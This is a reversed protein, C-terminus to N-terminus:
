PGVQERDEVLPRLVSELAPSLFRAYAATVHFDNTYALMNGIVPSCTEGCFWPTVDIFAVGSEEAVQREVDNYSDRTATALLSSCAQVDDPNRALCDLHGRWRPNDGLVALATGPSALQGLTERLGAAWASPSIRDRNPDVMHDCGNCSALVVLGPRSQNIRAIAGQLWAECDPPPGVFTRAGDSYANMFSVSAAPCGAKGLVLLRWNMRRALADFAEFWQAAHSDGLLVMTSAGAPDGFVCEPSTLSVDPDIRCAKAWEALWALDWRAKELTPELNPPLSTISPAAAVLALVDAVPDRVAPSSDDFVEVPAAFAQRPAAVRAAATADSPAGQSAMQWAC